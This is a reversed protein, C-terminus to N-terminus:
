SDPFQNKTLVEDIAVSENISVKCQALRLIVVGRQLIRGLAGPQIVKGSLDLRTWLTEDQAVRNFRQCVLSCRILTKKPLWKFISLIMEDSLREFNDTFYNPSHTQISHFDSKWCEGEGNYSRPDHPQYMFFHGMLNQLPKKLDTEDGSPIRNSKNANCSVAALPSRGKHKQASAGGSAKKASGSRSVSESPHRSTEVTFANGSASSLSAFPVLNAPTYDLINSMAAVNESQSTDNSDELVSECFLSSPDLLADEVSPLNSRCDYDPPKQAESSQNSLEDLRGVASSQNSSSEDSSSLIGLGMEELLGCDSKSSKSESDFTNM